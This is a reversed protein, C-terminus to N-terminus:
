FFRDTNLTIASASFAASRMKRVAMSRTSRHNENVAKARQEVGIQMEVPDDDILHELGIPSAGDGKM